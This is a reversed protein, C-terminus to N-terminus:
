PLYDEHFFCSLNRRLDSFQGVREICKVKEDHAREDHPHRRAERHEFGTQHPGLVRGLDQGLVDTEIRDGADHVHQATVRDHIRAVKLAAHKLANQCQAAAQKAGAVIGRGVDDGTAAVSVVRAQGVEEELDHKDRGRHRDDGTGDGLAHLEPREEQEATTRVPKM